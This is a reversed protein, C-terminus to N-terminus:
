AASEAVHGDVLTIRRSCQLAIQEDHTVIILTRGERNLEMFLRMIEKGTNSDLAGTPEDALIVQPEGVIARAIAIRQQQGGSLQTPKHDAFAQMGVRKLADLALQYAKARSIRRYMLPLIVNDLATFRPLLNFQQFVFGIYQNRFLALKDTDLGAVNHQCLFYDGSDAVDLLGLMNMLTSKGSGSAGLIAVIEGSLISLSINNLIVTRTTGLQYAKVLNEISIIPQITM